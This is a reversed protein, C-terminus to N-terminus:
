PMVLPLGAEAWAIVGGDVDAVDTFGLERMIAQTQGSRNGSRCYLLYPADPDLEALQDSFDDAYFDVMIAGPLHGEAFEEATRVDLVILDEPPNAQIEAGQKASVLRIGPAPVPTSAPAPAATSEEAITSGAQGAASNDAACGAAVALAAFLVAVSRQPAMTQM